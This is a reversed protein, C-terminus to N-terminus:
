KTTISQQKSYVTIGKDTIRYPHLKESHPSNRMKWVHISRSFTLGSREYYLVIVNDVVFEEVGYRSIGETGPIIESILISTTKLKKLIISLNFIMSRLEGTNKTHLGLASISDIVIREANMERITSELIDFIGEIHYPDYKMFSFRKLREYREFDWGFEMFSERISEPQEEFSLFVGNEGHLLGQYIYQAGLITKGTGCTGSVLVVQGKPFGGNMIDDLGYIGSKIREM